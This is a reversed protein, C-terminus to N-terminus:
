SVQLEARHTQKQKQQPSLILQKQSSLKGLMKNQARPKDIVNALANYLLTQQPSMMLTAAEAQHPCKPAATCSCCHKKRPM